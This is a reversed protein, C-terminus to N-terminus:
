RQQAALWSLIAEDEAQITRRMMDRFCDLYNLPRSDRHTVLEIDMTKDLGRIRFVHIKGGSQGVGCGDMLRHLHALACITVYNGTRCLDVLVDFDSVEIPLQASISHQLLFQRVAITTTSNSHGQVLPANHLLSLDAGDRLFRQTMEQCCDPFQSYMLQQSIVLYLSERCVPLKQFLPHQNADVGVFLDLEGRLLLQELKRTDNLYIQVDVNPFQQQFQPVMQPITIVGRTAPMGLRITGRVGGSIDALENAMSDELAQIRSLYRVMAEGEATLQLRPRRQFLQVHYQEELRKIHDSLCQPTVFAKEAARSFNMEQAALLFMQFGTTM